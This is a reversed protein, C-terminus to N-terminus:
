GRLTGGVAFAMVAGEADHTAMFFSFFGVVFFADDHSGTGFVAM